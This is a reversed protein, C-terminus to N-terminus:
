IKYRSGYIKWSEEELNEIEGGRLNAVEWFALAEDGDELVQEDNVGVALVKGRHPLTQLPNALLRNQIHRLHFIPFKLYSLYITSHICVSSPHLM